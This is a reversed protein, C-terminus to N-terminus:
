INLYDNDKLFTLRSVMLGSIMYLFMYNTPISISWMVFTTIILYYKIAVIYNSYLSENYIKDGEKVIRYTYYIFLLFTGLGILGSELFNLLYYSDIRGIISSADSRIGQGRLYSGVGSEYARYYQNIRSHSSAIQQVNGTFFIKNLLKIILPTFPLFITISIILYILRQEIAIRNYILHVIFIFFVVTLIVPISRSDSLYLTVPFIILFISSVIKHWYLAKGFLTAIGFPLVMALYSIMTLPNKFSAIPRLQEGRYYGELFKRQFERNPEVFDAFLNGSFIYEAITMCEVIVATLVFMFLINSLRKEDLDEQLGILFFGTILITEALWAGVSANSALITVVFRWLIYTLLFLFIKTSHHFAYYHKRCTNNNLLNILEGLIVASTLTRPTNIIINNSLEYGVYHPILIYLPIM